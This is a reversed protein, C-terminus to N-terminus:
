VDLSSQPPGGLSRQASRNANEAQARLVLMREMFRDADGHEIYEACFKGMDPIAVRLIGGDCLVRRAEALFSRAEARDLHELMHSSYVIEVNADPLPIRKTADAFEIRNKRCFNIYAIQQQSLMRGLVHVLTPHHVLKLSPSNDFNRWGM